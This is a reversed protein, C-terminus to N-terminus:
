DLGAPDLGSPGRVGLPEPQKPRLPCSFPCCGMQAFPFDITAEGGASKEEEPRSPSGVQLGALGAELQVEAATKQLSSAPLLFPIASVGM